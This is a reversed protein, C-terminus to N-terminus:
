ENIKEYLEKNDKTYYRLEIEGKKLMEQKAKDYAKVAKAFSAYQISKNINAYKIDLTYYKSVPGTRLLLYPEDIDLGDLERIVIFDTM